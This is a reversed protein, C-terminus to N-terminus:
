RDTGHNDSEIEWLGNPVTVVVRTGKGAAPEIRLQGGIARVREAMISLGWGSGAAPQRLREPAIGVGDDAVRLEIGGARQRLTIAVTGAGAHRAVNTLAEQVVRFLTMEIKARLRPFREDAENRARVGTRGAFEGAYWRLAAELGYQELLAPHLEEMLGRVMETTREVLAMSDQIRALVPAATGAPLRASVLTRNLSLNMSLASLNQGIRDHLESALAKREQEQTEVLQNTLAHLRETYDTITQEAQKREGVERQLSQNARDLAETREQVLRELERNIRQRGAEAQRRLWELGLAAWILLSFLLRNAQGFGVVEDPLALLKVAALLPGLIAILLLLGNGAGAGVAFLAVLVYLFPVGLGLPANMDLAFITIMAAAIGAHVLASTKKVPMATPPSLSPKGVNQRTPACKDHM